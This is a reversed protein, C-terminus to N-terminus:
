PHICVPALIMESRITCCRTLSLSFPLPCKHATLKTAKTSGVITTGHVDLQWLLPSPLAITTQPNTVMEQTSGKTLLYRNRLDNVEIDQIYDGDAVYMEPKM